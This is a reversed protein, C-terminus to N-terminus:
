RQCLAQLEVLPPSVGRSHHSLCWQLALTHYESTGRLPPSLIADQLCAVSHMNLETPLTSCQCLVLVPLHVGLFCGCSAMISRWASLVSLVGVMQMPFSLNQVIVLASVAPFRNFGSSFHRLRPMALLWCLGSSFHRLRSMFWFLRWVFPLARPILTLLFLRVPEPCSPM